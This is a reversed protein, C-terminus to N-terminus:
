ILPITLSFRLVSLHQMTNIFTSAFMKFTTTNIRKLLGGGVASLSLRMLARFASLSLRMLFRFAARAVNGLKLIGHVRVGNCSM